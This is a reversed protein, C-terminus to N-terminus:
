WILDGDSGFNSRAVTSLAYMGFNTTNYMSDELFVVELASIFPSSVTRENRALCVSLMKWMAVVVLEYYSSLGNAYDATTNVTSWKTGDVIQDFVPPEKGGDFGGYYYVTRVLYKGGKIVPIVYCYKRASTDPFYRLTSLIPLLNPHNVSSRNGASTFGEDTIYKLSGM